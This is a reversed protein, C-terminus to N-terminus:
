LIQHTIADWTDRKDVPLGRPYSPDLVKSVRKLPPRCIVPRSQPPAERVSSTARPPQLLPEMGQSSRQRRTGRRLEKSESPLPSLMPEVDMSNDEQAGPTSHLGRSAKEAELVQVKRTLDEIQKRLAAIEGTSPASNDARERLATAAARMTAASHYLQSALPGKLSGSKCGIKFIRVSEEIAMAVLDNSPAARLEEEKLGELERFREWAQGTPRTNKGIDKMLYKLCLERKLEAEKEKREKAGVHEWTSPPRGPGRKAKEELSDLSLYEDDGANSAVELDSMAETDPDSDVVEMEERDSAADEAEQPVQSRTRSAPGPRVSLTHDSSLVVNTTVKPLLHSDCETLVVVPSLLNEGEKTTFNNFFDSM